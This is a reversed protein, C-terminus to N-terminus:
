CSFVDYPYAPAQRVSQGCFGCNKADKSFNKCVGNCDAMGSPCGCSGQICSQDKRCVSRCTGCNTKDKATDVCKTGCLTKGPSAKPGCDFCAGKGAKARNVCAKRAALAPFNSSCWENCSLDRTEPTTAITGLVFGLLLVPVLRLM